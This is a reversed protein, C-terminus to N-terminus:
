HRIRSTKEEITLELISVSKFQKEILLLVHIWLSIFSFFVYIPITKIRFPLQLVFFYQFKGLEDRAAM